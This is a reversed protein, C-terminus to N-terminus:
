LGLSSNSLLPCEEKFFYPGSLLSMQFSNHHLFLFCSCQLLHDLLSTSFNCSPHFVAKLTKILLKKKLDFHLYIETNPQGSNGKFREGSNGKGKQTSKLTNRNTETSLDKLSKGQQQFSKLHHSLTIDKTLWQGELSVCVCDKLDIALPENPTLVM